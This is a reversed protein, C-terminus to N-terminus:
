CIPGSTAEDLNKEKARKQAFYHSEGLKTPYKRNVCGFCHEKSDFAFLLDGEELFFLDKVGLFIAM